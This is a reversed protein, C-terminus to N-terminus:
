SCSTLTDTASTGLGQDVIVVSGVEACIYATNPSPYSWGLTISQPNGDCDNYDVSLLEGSQTSGELFWYTCSLAITPTPTPTATATPTPTPTPGVTATPTPTPTPAGTLIASDCVVYVCEEGIFRFEFKYEGGYFVPVEFDSPTIGTANRTGYQETTGPTSNSISDVMRWPKFYDQTPGMMHVSLIAVNGSQRTFPTAGNLNWNYYYSIDLNSGNLSMTLGSISGIPCNDNINHVITTDYEVRDNNPYVFDNSPTQPIYRKSM